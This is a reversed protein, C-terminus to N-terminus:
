TENLGAAIIMPEDDVMVGLADARKMVARCETVTIRELVPVSLDFITKRGALAVLLEGCAVNVLERLADEAHEPTLEAPEMGLVNAALQLCFSPSAYVSLWGSFPGSFQIGAHLFERGRLPLEGSEVPALFMFAFQELVDAMVDFLIEHVDEASLKPIDPKESM